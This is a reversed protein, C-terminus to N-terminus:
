INESSPVSEWGPVSSQSVQMILDWLDSIKTTILPHHDAHSISVFANMIRCIIFVATIGHTNKRQKTKNQKRVSVTAHRLEITLEPLLRVSTKRSIRTM